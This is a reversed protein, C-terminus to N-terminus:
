LQKEDLEFLTESLEYQDQLNGILEEDSVDADLHKWTKRIYKALTRWAKATSSAKVVYTRVNEANRSDTDIFVYTNM